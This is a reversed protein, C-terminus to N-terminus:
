DTVRAVEDYLRRANEATEKFGGGPADRFFVYMIAAMIAVTFKRSM